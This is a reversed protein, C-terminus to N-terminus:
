LQINTFSYYKSTFCVGSCEFYKELTSITSDYDLGEAKAYTQYPACDSVTTIGTTSTVMKTQQDAPWLTKDIPKLVIGKIVQMALVNLQVCTTSQSKIFGIMTVLIGWQNLVSPRSM